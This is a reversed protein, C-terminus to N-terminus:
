RDSPICVVDFVMKCEPKPNAFQLKVSEYGNEYDSRRLHYSLPVQKPDMSGTVTIAVGQSSPFSYLFAIQKSDDLAM